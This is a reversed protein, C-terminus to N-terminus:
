QESSVAYQVCACQVSCVACQLSCVHMCAYVSCVACQLLCALGHEKTRDCGVQVRKGSGLEFTTSTVSIDKVVMASDAQVGEVVVKDGVEYPSYVVIFLLSQVVASVTGGIAFSTAIAVTGLPLLVTTISLGFVLMFLVFSLICYAVMTSLHYARSVTEHGLWSRRLTKWDNLM